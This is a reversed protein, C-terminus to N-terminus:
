MVNGGNPGLMQGTLFSGVDSALFLACLSSSSSGIDSRISAYRPQEDVEAWLTPTSQVKGFHM